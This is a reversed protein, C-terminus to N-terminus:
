KTLYATKFRSIADSSYEVGEIGNLGLFWTDHYLYVVPKIEDVMELAEGYLEKRDDQDIAAAADSIVADLKPDSLQSFNNGGGTTLLDNFNGDPDIRGSWGILFAEFDG